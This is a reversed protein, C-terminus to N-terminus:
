GTGGVGGRVVGAEGAGGASCSSLIDGPQVLGTRAAAGGEVVEAVYVTSPPRPISLLCRILMRDLNLGPPPTRHRSM